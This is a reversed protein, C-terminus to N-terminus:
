EVLDELHLDRIIVHTPVLRGYRRHSIDGPLRVRKDYEGRRANKIAQIAPSVMSAPLSPYHNWKLHYTM